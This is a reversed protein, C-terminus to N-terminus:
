AYNSMGFYLPLHSLGKYIQLLKFRGSLDKMLIRVGIAIPTPIDGSSGCIIELIKKLPPMLIPLISVFISSNRILTFPGAKLSLPYM